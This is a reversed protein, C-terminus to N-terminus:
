VCASLGGAAGGYFVQFAGANTPTGQDEGPVAVALDQCARGGSVDGDFNGAVLGAGFDDYAGADGLVGNSNQHFWDDVTSIGGASGYIVNIAGADAGAGLDERPIGIALDAYGDCDFDGTALFEGYYDYAEEVSEIGPSDQTISQDGLHTIGGASGYVIHVAGINAGTTVDDEGPIGFALEDYGDADFDGGAVSDGLYDFAADAGLVGPSDRNWYEIVGDAYVVVVVGVYGNENPLGYATDLEGDGDFDGATVSNTRQGVLGAAHASTAAGVTGFVLLMNIVPRM